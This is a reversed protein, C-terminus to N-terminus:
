FNGDLASVCYWQSMLMTCVCHRAWSKSSPYEFNYLRISKKVIYFGIISRSNQLCAISFNGYTFQYFWNLLEILLLLIQQWIQYELDLVFLGLNTSYIYLFFKTHIKNDDGRALTGQWQGLGNSQWRWRYTSPNTTPSSFLISFSRRLSCPCTIHRHRQNPLRSAGTHQQRPLHQAM